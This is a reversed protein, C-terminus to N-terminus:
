TATTTKSCGWPFEGGTDILRSWLERRDTDLAGLVVSKSVTDAVATYVRGAADVAIRVPSLRDPILNQNDITSFYTRYTDSGPFNVRVGTQMVRATTTSIASVAVYVDDNQDLVAGLAQVESNAILPLQRTEVLPYFIDSREASFISVGKWATVVEIRYVYETNGDLLTDTFSTNAVDDIQSVVVDLGGEFRRHVAYAAFMPGAYQSWSVGASATEASLTLDRIEVAPIEYSVERRESEFDTAFIVTTIWYFYDTSPLAATDPWATIEASSLVALRTPDEGFARRWVEYREFGPGAYRQWTLTIQGATALKEVSVLEVGAVAFSRVSFQESPAAFGAVNLVEIWYIYDRDPAVSTDAFDTQAPDGIVAVTDVAELGKEKRLLRYVSFDTRADYPDCSVRAVGTSDSVQVDIAAVPPTLEPDFPNDRKSNHCSTLLFAAVAIAAIRRPM